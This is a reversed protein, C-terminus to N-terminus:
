DRCPTNIINVVVINKDVYFPSFTEIKGECKLKLAKAVLLFFSLQEECDSDLSVIYSLYGQYITKLNSTSGFDM